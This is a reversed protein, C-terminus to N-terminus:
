RRIGCWECLQVHGMTYFKFSHKKDSCCLCEGAVRQTAESRLQEHVGALVWAADSEKIHILLAREMLIRMEDNTM